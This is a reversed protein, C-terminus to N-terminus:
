YVGRSQVKAPSQCVKGWKYLIEMHCVVQGISQIVIGEDGGKSVPGNFFGSGPEEEVVVVVAFLGVGERWSSREWGAMGGIMYASAMNMVATFESWSVARAAEVWVHERWRPTTLRALHHSLLTLSASLSM